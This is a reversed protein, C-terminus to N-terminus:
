DEDMSGFRSIVDLRNTQVDLLIMRYVSLLCVVQKPIIGM